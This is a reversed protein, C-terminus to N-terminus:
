RIVKKTTPLHHCMCGGGDGGMEFREVCAPVLVHPNIFIRSRKCIRLTMASTDKVV